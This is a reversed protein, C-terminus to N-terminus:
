WPMSKAAGRLATTNQNISYIVLLLSALVAFVGVVEGLQAWEALSLRKRGSETAESM